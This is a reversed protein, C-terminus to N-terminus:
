EPGLSSVTAKQLTAVFSEEDAFHEQIGSGPNSLGFTTLIEPLSAEFSYFIGNITLHSGRQSAGHGM